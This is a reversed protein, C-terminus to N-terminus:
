YKYKAYVEEEWWANVQKKLIKSARKFRPDKGAISLAFKLGFKSANQNLKEVDFGFNVLNNYFTRDDIMRREIEPIVDIRRCIMECLSVHRVVNAQIEADEGAGQHNKGYKELERQMEGLKTLRSSRPMKKYDELIKRGSPELGYLILQDQNVVDGRARGRVGGASDDARDDGYPAFVDVDDRGADYPVGM